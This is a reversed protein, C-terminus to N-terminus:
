DDSKDLGLWSLFGRRKPPQVIEVEDLAEEDEDDATLERLTAAEGPHHFEAGIVFGRIGQTCHTVQAGVWVASDGGCFERVFVDQGPELEQRIWFAIGVLSINHLTVPYVETADASEVSAELKVM